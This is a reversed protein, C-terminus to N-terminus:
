DMKLKVFQIIKDLSNEDSTDFWEIERDRKFWKRQRKVYNWDLRNIEEELEHREIQGQVHQTIARYELGIEFLRDKSIGDAILDKVEQIMGDELRERTRHQIKNKLLKDPLDVGIKIFKYKPPHTTPSPIKGHTLYLSLARRVRPINNEDIQLRLGEPLNKHFEEWLKRASFGDVKEKISPNSSLYTINKIVTDIYYGSGGTIIPLKQKTSIKELASYCDRHYDIVTYRRELEAISLLWHPVGEMESETIKGSGIDLRKYVQRSDASVVEGDFTKALQVALSSKGSSTPGVLVIVPPLKALSM